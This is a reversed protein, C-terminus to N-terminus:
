PHSRDDCHRGSSRRRVDDGHSGLAGTHTHLEIQVVRGVRVLRKRTHPAQEVHVGVRGRHLLDEPGIRQERRQHRLPRPQAHRARHVAEFQGDPRDHPLLHRHRARPRHEAPQHPFVASEEGIDQRLGIGAAERERAPPSRSEHLDGSQDGGPLKPEVRVRIRM